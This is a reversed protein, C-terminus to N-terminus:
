AMLQHEMERDSNEIKFQRSTYDEYVRLLRKRLLMRSRHLRSKVAPISVHLVEGVEQNSLGDVDRLIFITRYEEPLKSIALQLSIALENRSADDEASYSLWAGKEQLPIEEISLSDRYRKKRLKMFATNVTIRYLWSSFASKGEFKDIKKFVCVFVDQVVEEADQQNRTLRLALNLVKMSYRNFVEEFSSVDRLKIGNVLEADNRTVRM